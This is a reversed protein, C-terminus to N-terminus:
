RQISFFTVGHGISHCVGFHTTAILLGLSLISCVSWEFFHLAGSNHAVCSLICALSDWNRQSAPQARRWTIQPWSLLADWYSTFWRTPMCHHLHTLVIIDRLNHSAITFESRRHVFGHHLCHTRSRDQLCTGLLLQTWKMEPAAFGWLRGRFYYFGRATHLSPWSKTCTFCFEGLPLQINKAKEIDTIFSPFPLCSLGKM